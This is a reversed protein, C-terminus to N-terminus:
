IPVHLRLSLEPVEGKFCCSTPDGHVLFSVLDGGDWKGMGLFGFLELSWPGSCRDSFGTLLM